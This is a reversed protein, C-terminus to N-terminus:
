LLLLLRADSGSTFTLLKFSCLASRVSLQASPTPSFFFLNDGSEICRCDEREGRMIYFEFEIIM